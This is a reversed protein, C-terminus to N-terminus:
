EWQRLKFNKHSLKGTGRKKWKAFLENEQQTGVALTPDETPGHADGGGWRPAQTGSARVGQRGAGVEAEPQKQMERTSEWPSSSQSATSCSWEKCCSWEGGRQAMPMRVKCHLRLRLQTIGQHSASQRFTDCLGAAEDGTKWLGARFTPMWFNCRTQTWSGSNSSAKRQWSPGLKKSRPELASLIRSPLNFGDECCSDPSVLWRQSPRIGDATM